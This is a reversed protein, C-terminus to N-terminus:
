RFHQSTPDMCVFLSYSEFGQREQGPRRAKAEPGLGSGHKSEHESKLLAVVKITNWPKSSKLLLTRIKKLTCFFNRVEGPLFKKKNRRTAIKKAFDLVQEKQLSSSSPVSSSSFFLQFSFQQRLFFFFFVSASFFITAEIKKMGWFRLSSQFDVDRSKKLWGSKKGIM